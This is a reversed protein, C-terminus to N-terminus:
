TALTELLANEKKRIVEMLYSSIGKLAESAKELHVNLEEDYYECETIENEAEMFYRADERLTAINTQSAYM